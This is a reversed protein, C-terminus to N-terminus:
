PFTVVAPISNGQVPDETGGSGAAVGIVVAGVVVVGIATWFWWKEYIPAGTAADDGDTVDSEILAWTAPDLSVQATQGEAITREETQLVTDGRRATVTHAGANLRLPTGFETEDIEREDVHVTASGRYGTVFVTLRAYRGDLTAKLEDAHVRVSDPTTDDELVGDLLEGAEVLEGLEVLAAALNYAIAPAPHLALAERFSAAAESYSQSGTLEVGQHFLVRARDMDESSASAAEPAGPAGQAAASSRLGGLAIVCTMLILM